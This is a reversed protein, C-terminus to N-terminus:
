TTGRYVNPRQTYLVSVILRIIEYEKVFNGGRSRTRRRLDARVGLYMIYRRPYLASTELIIRAPKDGTYLSSIDRREYM